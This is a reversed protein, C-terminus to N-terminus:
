SSSRPGAGPAGAGRENLLPQRRLMETLANGWAAAMVGGIASPERIPASAARSGDCTAVHARVVELVEMLNLGDICHTWSCAHFNHEVESGGGYQGENSVQFLELGSTPVQETM